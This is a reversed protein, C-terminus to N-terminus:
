CAFDINVTTGIIPTPFMRGDKFFITKDQESNWYGRGSAIQMAVRGALCYENIGSLGLGAPMDVAPQKTSNGDVAWKIAQLDSVIGNKTFERIPPLFGIGLDVMTFFLRKRGPYFQGCVFFPFDSRSHICYNNFIELLDTAVAKMLTVPVTAFARHGILDNDLYHKFDHGRVSTFNECAVTTLRDDAPIGNAKILGNRILVHFKEKIQPLNVTFTLGNEHNLKYILAQLLASMNAEFFDLWSFDLSVETNYLTRLQDYFSHLNKVGSFDSRIESPFIYVATDSDQRFM